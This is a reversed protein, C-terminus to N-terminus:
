NSDIDLLLDANLSNDSYHIVVLNGTKEATLNKIAALKYVYSNENKYDQVISPQVKYTLSSGNSSVTKFLLYFTETRIQQNVFYRRDATLLFTGDPETESFFVKTLSDSINYGNIKFRLISPERKKFNESDAKVADLENKEKPSASQQQKKLDNLSNLVQQLLVNTSTSTAYNTLSSGSYLSSIDSFLGSDYLSSIDYATLTNGKSLSSSIISEPTIAETLVTENKEKSTESTNNTQGTSNPRSPFSPTYFGGGVTPMSPMEPMEPMEITTSSTQAFAGSVLLLSLLGSAFVTVAKKSKYVQLARRWM